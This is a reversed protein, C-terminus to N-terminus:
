LHTLVLIHVHVFWYVIRLAHIKCVSMCVNFLMNYTYIITLESSVLNTYMYICTYMYTYIYVHICTHLCVQYVALDEPPTPVQYKHILDFLDKVIAAEDEVGAIQEQIEDLFSCPLSPPFQPSLCSTSSHPLFHLFPPTFSPLLSYLSVQLVWDVTDAEWYETSCICM